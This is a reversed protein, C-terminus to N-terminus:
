EKSKHKALLEKIRLVAGPADLHPMCYDILILKYMPQKSELRHQVFEVAELGDSVLDPWIKFHNLVSNLAVINLHNDDAILVQSFDEDEEPGGISM